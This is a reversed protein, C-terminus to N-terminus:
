CPLTFPGISALKYAVSGQDHHITVIDIAWDCLSQKTHKYGLIRFLKACRQVHVTLSNDIGVVGTIVALVQGWEHILGHMVKLQSCGGGGGGGGRKFRLTTLYVVRDENGLGWFPSLAISGRTAQKYATQRRLSYHGLLIFRVVHTYWSSVRWQFGKYHVAVVFM